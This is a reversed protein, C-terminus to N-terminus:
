IKLKQSGSKPKTSARPSEKNSDPKTGEDPLKTDKSAEPKNKDRTFYLTALIASGIVIYALAFWV